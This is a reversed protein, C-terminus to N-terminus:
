LPSPWHRTTVFIGEARMLEGFFVRSILPGIFVHFKNSYVPTLDGFDSLDLLEAEKQEAAVDNGM